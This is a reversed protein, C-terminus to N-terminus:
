RAAAFERTANVYRLKSLTSQALDRYRISFNPNISLAQNLDAEAETNLGLHNAIMGAHFLLLADQTGLQLAQRSFDYAEAYRGAQYLAWAMVDKAYITSRKDLARQARALIESM